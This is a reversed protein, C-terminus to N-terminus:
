EGKWWLIVITILLLALLGIGIDLVFMAIISGLLLGIIFGGFGFEEMLILPPTFIVIFPLLISLILTEIPVLPPHEGFYNSWTEVNVWDVAVNIYNTWTETEEWERDETNLENVWNEVDTWVEGVPVYSAYINYRKDGVSLGVIPDPFNPYNYTLLLYRSNEPNIDDFAYASVKDSFWGALLYDEGEVVMAKNDSYGWVIPLLKWDDWGSGLVWSETYGILVNDPLHYIAYAVAPTYALKQKLCMTIAIIEGNEPAIFHSGRINNELISWSTEAKNEYGFNNVAYCQNNWNEVNTWTRSAVNFQNTWNEVNEWDGALVPSTSILMLFFILVLLPLLTKKKDITLDGEFTCMM